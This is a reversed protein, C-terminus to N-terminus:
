GLRAAITALRDRDAQRRDVYHETVGPSSHGAVLASGVRGFDAEIQTLALRRLQYPTWPPVSAMRAASKIRRRYTQIRIRWGSEDVLLAGDGDMLPALIAIARPGLAIARERGRHATKHSEATYWWVKPNSVDVDDRRMAILEGPRAGTALQLDILRRWWSGIARRVAEVDGPRAAEGRGADPAVTRGARLTPVLSWAVSLSPDVHGARGAWACWRRMKHVYANVSLRSLGRRVLETQYRELHSVNLGPLKAAGFLDAFPRVASMLAAAEGSRTGDPRRYWIRAWERFPDLSEAVTTPAAGAVFRRWRSMADENTGSGFSKFRRRGDQDIWSSRWRGGQMKPEPPGPSPGTGYGPSRGVGLAHAGRRQPAGPTEMRTM